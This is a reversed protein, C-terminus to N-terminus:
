AIFRWRARSLAGCQKFAGNPSTSDPLIGAVRGFSDVRCSHRNMPEGMQTACVTRSPDEVSGLREPRAVAGKRTRLLDPCLREHGQWGLREPQNRRGYQNRFSDTQLDTAEIQRCYNYWM